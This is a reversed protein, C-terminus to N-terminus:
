STRRAVLVRVQGEDDAISRVDTYVGGQTLRKGVSPGQGLGVEFALWGHPRQPPGARDTM